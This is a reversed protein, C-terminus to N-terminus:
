VAIHHFNTDITKRGKQGFSLMLSKHGGRLPHGVKQGFDLCRIANPEIGKPDTFVM